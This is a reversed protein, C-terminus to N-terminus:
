DQGSKTPNITVEGGSNQWSMFARIVSHLSGGPLIGLDGQSSLLRPDDSLPETNDTDESGYVGVFTKNLVKEYQDIPSMGQQKMLVAWEMLDLRKFKVWILQQEPQTEQVRAELEKLNDALFSQDGTLTKLAKAQELEAKADEHEQSYRAGMDVELVLHDKKREQVAQMLEEYSNFSM